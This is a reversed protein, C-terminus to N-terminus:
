AASRQERHAVLVALAEPHADLVRLASSIAHSAVVDGAEYKQFANPGGGIVLGAERQSLGLRRRIRRVDEPLLLGEAEAKLRHLARDSVKMDEGGHIGEEVGEAYWGPMDIVISRGKYSLTMPRTGRTMVAGTEPCIREDM